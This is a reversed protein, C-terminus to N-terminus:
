ERTDRSVLTYRNIWNVEWTKGGDASFAQESVHTTPGTSYVSFRVLIARGNFPEEDYFDIRGDKFEGIGPIDNLKGVASTAFNVSWEHSIPSYVRLAILEMPGSPPNSRNEAMNARGGWIKHVVTTGDWEVWDKAGTLPHMLRSSHEKWTGFTFDFDHSGDRLPAAHDTQAAAPSPAALSGLAALAWCAALTRAIRTM